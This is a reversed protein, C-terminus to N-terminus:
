RNTRVSGILMSRGTPRDVLLVIESGVAQATITIGWRSERLDLLDRLDIREWESGDPSVHIYPASRSSPAVWGFSARTRQEVGSVLTLDDFDRGDRTTWMARGEDTFVTVIVEDDGQRVNIPTRETPEAPLDVLHWELGDATRWITSERDMRTTARAIVGVSTATVDVRDSPSWPASATVFREGDWMSWVATPSGAVVDLTTTETSGSEVSFSWVAHGAADVVDFDGGDEQLTFRSVPLEHFDGSVVGIEQDGVIVKVRYPGGNAEGTIAAWPLESRVTTFLFLDGDLVVPFGDAAPADPDAQVTFGRGGVVDVADIVAPAVDDGNVLSLERRDGLQDLRWDIGGVRRVVSAGDSPGSWSRGDISQWRGGADDEGFLGQDDGGTLRAPMSSSDGEIRTWAIEGVSTLQVRDLAIDTDTAADGPVEDFDATTPMEDFKGTTSAWILLGAVGGLLGAAAIGREPAFRRRRHASPEDAHEAAIREPTSWNRSMAGGRAWPEPAGGSGAATGVSTAAESDHGRDM